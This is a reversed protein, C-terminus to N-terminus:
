MFSGREKQSFSCCKDEFSFCKGSDTIFLKRDKIWSDKDFRIFFNLESDLRSGAHQLIQGKQVEILNNLLNNFFQNILNDKTLTVEFIEIIKENFGAVRTKKVAVKSEELNFPFFKLFGDLVSNKDEHEFSFVALKLQHAYKM